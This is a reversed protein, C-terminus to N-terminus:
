LSLTEYTVVYMMLLIQTKNRNFCMDTTKKLVAFGQKSKVAYRGGRDKEFARSERRMLKYTDSNPVSGSKIIRKSKTRKFVQWFVLMTLGLADKTTEWVPTEPWFFKRSNWSLLEVQAIRTYGRKEFM